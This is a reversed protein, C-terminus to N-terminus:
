NVSVIDDPDASGDEEGGAGLMAENVPNFIYIIGWLEVEQDLRDVNEPAIMQPGTANGGFDIMGGGSGHAQPSYPTASETFSVEDPPSYRFQRVEYTLPANACAALLRNVYQQDIRVRIQVPIRKAIDLNSKLDEITNIKQFNQDVYRGVALHPPGLKPANPDNPDEATPEAPPPATGGGGLDLDDDDDGGGTRVPAPPDVYGRRAVDKGYKISIIEKVPATAQTRADGNTAKIIDIISGLIWLDEQAYLVQMTTPYGPWDFTQQIFKQNEPNWQVITPKDFGPPLEEDSNAPLTGSGRADVLTGGPDWIAGIRQAIRPLQNQMFAKYDTRAVPPLEQKTFDVKEIPRMDEVIKLVSASRPGFADQPWTFTKGQREWKKQWAALVNARRSAILEDMVEHWEENPHDTTNAIGTAAQHYGGITSVNRSVTESVTGTASWWGYGALILLVPLIFWFHQRRFLGLFEKLQDM